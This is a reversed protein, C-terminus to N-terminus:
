EPDEPLLLTVTTGIARLLRELQQLYSWTGFLGAILVSLVTWEFTSFNPM